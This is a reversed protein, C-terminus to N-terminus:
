VQRDLVAEALQSPLLRLLVSLLEQKLDALVVV